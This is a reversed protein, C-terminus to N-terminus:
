AAALPIMLAFLLRCPMAFYSIAFLMAFIFILRFYRFSFDALSFIHRSAFIILFRLPTILMM